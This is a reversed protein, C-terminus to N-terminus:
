RRYVFYLVRRFDLVLMVTMMDDDIHVDNFPRQLFLDSTVETACGYQHLISGINFWYPINCM